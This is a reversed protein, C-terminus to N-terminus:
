AVCFENGEPDSMTIWSHPGQHGEYLRTAGLALLRDVEGDRGDAGVHLDLHVRNKVTKPEPVLQFYLRPLRGTADECAAAERWVLVGDLEMVDADTAVGADVLARIDADNQVVTCGLAAAWFKAMRHPDACDIAIQVTTTM